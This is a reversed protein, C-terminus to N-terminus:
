DRYPSIPSQPSYVPPSTPTSPYHDVLGQLRALSVAVLRDHVGLKRYINGLHKHVTRPSLRLRSAISTALLGEALLNLVQLERETMRSEDVTERVWEKAQHAHVSREAHPWLAVLADRARDLLLRDGAGFPISRSYVLVRGQGGPSGGNADTNHISMSAVHGIQEIYEVCFQEEGAQLNRALLDDAVAHAAATDPYSSAVYPAGDPIVAIIVSADASLARGLHRCVIDDAHGGITLAHMAECLMDLVVAAPEVRALRSDERVVQPDRRAITYSDIM